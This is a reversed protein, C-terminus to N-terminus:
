MATVRAALSALRLREGIDELSRELTREAVRHMAVADLLNGARGGPPRYHATLVVDVGPPRRHEVRLQGELVPLARSVSGGRRAVPVWRIHRTFADPLDRVDGVRIHVSQLAPGGHVTSLWGTGDVRVAPLPLWSGPDAAFAHVLAWRQGDVHVTANVRAM